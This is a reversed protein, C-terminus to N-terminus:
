RDEQTLQQKQLAEMDKNAWEEFPTKVVFKSMDLHGSAAKM